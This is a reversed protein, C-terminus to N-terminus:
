ERFRQFEMHRGVLSIDIKLSCNAIMAMVGTSIVLDLTVHNNSHLSTMELAVKVEM